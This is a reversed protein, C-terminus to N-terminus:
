SSSNSVALRLLFYLLIRIPRECGFLLYKVGIKAHPLRFEIFLCM